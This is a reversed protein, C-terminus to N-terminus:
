RHRDQVLWTTCSTYRPLYLQAWGPHPLANPYWCIRSPGSPLPIHWPTPTSASIIPGLCFHHVIRSPGSTLLIYWPLPIDASVALGLPEATDVSNRWAGKQLYLTSSLNRDCCWPRPFKARTLRCTSPRLAKTWLWHM